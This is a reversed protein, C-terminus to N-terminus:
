GRSAPNAALALWQRLAPDVRGRHGAMAAEGCASWVRHFGLAYRVPHLCGAIGMATGIDDPSAHGEWRALYARVAADMRGAPQAGHRRRFNSVLNVVSLFPHGVVAEGWDAVLAVGGSVFINGDGFDGHDLTPPLGGALDLRACTDRLFGLTGPLRALEDAALGTEGDGLTALMGAFADALRSPRWDPLGMGLLRPVMSAASVQLGAYQPMMAALPALDGDVPFTSRLPEGADGMLFAGSGPHRALVGVVPVAPDHALMAQLSAEVAFAPRPIKLYFPARRCDVRYVAAWPRDTFPAAPAAPEEGRAELWELAWALEPRQM